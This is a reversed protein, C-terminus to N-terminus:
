VAHTLQVEGSGDANILYIESTTLGPGFIPAAKTVAIRDLSAPAVPGATTTPQVAVLHTPGDDRRSVVVLGAAVLVVVSLSAAATARRRRRQRAREVVREMPPP